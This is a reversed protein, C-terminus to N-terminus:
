REPAPNAVTVGVAQLITLAEADNANLTLAIQKGTLSGQAQLFRNIDTPLLRTTRTSSLGDPDTITLSIVM